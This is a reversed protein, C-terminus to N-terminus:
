PANHARAREALAADIIVRGRAEALLAPWPGRVRVPAEWPAAGLAELFARRSEALREQLGHLGHLGHLGLAPARLQPASLSVCVYGVYTYLTYPLAPSPQPSSPLSWPTNQHETVSKCPNVSKIGERGRRGFPRYCNIGGAVSKKAQQPSCRWRQLPTEHCPWFPGGHWSVAAPPM